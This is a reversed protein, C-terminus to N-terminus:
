PYTKKKSFFSKIYTQIILEASAKSSSYPDIGGLLDNEKYGRKIELNKYSKDSTILVVVCKNKLVKLSELVSLTGFTNSKYTEIPNSYSKNVLSQAALHFVFEPKFNLFIKKIKKVDCIDVRKSIIRGSMKISKFHSPKTLIGNSLGMVKAGCLYLWLSLWSGKFGTHGTVIIRKNKFKRLIKQMLM